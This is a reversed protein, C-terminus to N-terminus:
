IQAPPGRSSRPQWTVSGLAAPPGRIRHVGAIGPALIALGPRPGHALEDDEEASRPDESSEEVVAPGPVPLGVAEAHAPRAALEAISAALEPLGSREGRSAAGLLCVCAAVLLMRLAAFWRRCGRDM